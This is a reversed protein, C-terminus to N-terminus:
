IITIIIAIIFMAYFGFIWQNRNFDLKLYEIELEYRSLDKLEKM